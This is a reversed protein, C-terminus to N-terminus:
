MSECDRLYESRPYLENAIELSVVLGKYGALVGRRHLKRWAWWPLVEGATDWREPESILGSNPNTSFETSLHAVAVVGTSGNLEGCGGTM